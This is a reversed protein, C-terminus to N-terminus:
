EFFTFPVYMKGKYDMPITIAPNVYIIDDHGEVTPYTHNKTTYKTNFPEKKVNFSTYWFTPATAKSGDPRVFENINTYGIFVKNEKIFNFFDKKISLHKPGVFIFDKHKNICLKTWEVPMNSSYPPNSVVIDCEDMINTNDQFRGSKIEKTIVDKGDYDYRKPNKDYYTAILHKLGLKKFNDHFYKWFNSFKPNDCNCYM